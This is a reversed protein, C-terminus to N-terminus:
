FLTILKAFNALDFLSCNFFNYVVKFYISKIGEDIYIILTEMTIYAPGFFLLM